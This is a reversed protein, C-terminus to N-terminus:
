QEHFRTFLVIEKKKKCTIKQYDLSTENTNLMEDECELALKGILPKKCSCNKIDLYEDIKSAKICKSDCRSPNWM